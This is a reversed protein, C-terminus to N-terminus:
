ALGRGSASQWAASAKRRQAANMLFVYSTRADEHDAGLAKERIELAEKFENIAQDLRNQALHVEGLGQRTDAVDISFRGLSKIRTGLAEKYLRESEDLRNQKYRLRAICHLSRAIEPHKTNLVKRKISLSARLLEDARPLDGQLMRVTGLNNLYTAYEISDKADCKSLIALAKVLEDAAKEYQHQKCHIAALNNLVKATAPHEAGFQQKAKALVIETLPEARDYKGQRFCLVALNNEAITIYPHDAPLERQYVYLAERYKKEATRLEGRRAQIAGINNCITAKKEASQCYSIVSKLRSEAKSYEGCCFDKWAKAMALDIRASEKDSSASAYGFAALPLSTLLLLSFATAAYKVSGNSRVSRNLPISPSSLRSAGPEIKTLEEAWFLRYLLTQAISEISSHQQDADQGPEQDWLLSYPSNSPSDLKVTLVPSFDRSGFTNFEFGLMLNTPVIFCTVTDHEGRIVLANQKASIHGEYWFDNTRTLWDASASDEKREHYQPSEVNVLNQSCRIRTNIDHVFQGMREFLEDIWRVTSANVASEYKDTWARRQALFEESEYQSALMDIWAESPSVTRNPRIHDLLDEITEGPRGGGEDPCSRTHRSESGWLNNFNQIM